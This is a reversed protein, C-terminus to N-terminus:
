KIEVEYNGSIKQGIVTFGYYKSLDIFDLQKRKMDQILNNKILTYYYDKQVNGQAIQMKSVVLVFTAIIIIIIFTFPLIIGKSKKNM